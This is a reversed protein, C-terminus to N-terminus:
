QLEGGAMSITDGNLSVDVGWASKIAAVANNKQVADVEAELNFQYGDYKYTHKVIVNGNADTQKSSEVEAGISSDIVLNESLPNTTDGKGLPKSYYLVTREKTSADKDM